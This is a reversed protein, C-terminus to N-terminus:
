RQWRAERAADVAKAVDLFAAPTGVVIALLTLWSHYGHAWGAMCLAVLGGQILVLCTWRWAARVGGAGEGDAADWGGRLGPM